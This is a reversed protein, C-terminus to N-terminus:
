KICLYSKQKSNMSQINIKKGILTLVQFENEKRKEALDLIPPKSNPAANKSISINQVPQNNSRSRATLTKKNYM